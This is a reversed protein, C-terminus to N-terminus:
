PSSLSFCCHRVCSFTCLFIIVLVMYHTISTKFCWVGVWYGAQWAGPSSYFAIRRDNGPVEVLIFLFIWSLCYRVGVQDDFVGTPNIHIKEELSWLLELDECQCLKIDKINDNAVRYSFLTCNHICLCIPPKFFPHISPHISPYCVGGYPGWHIKCWLSCYSLLPLRVKM